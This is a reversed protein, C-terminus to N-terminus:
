QIHKTDDSARMPRIPRVQMGSISINAELLYCILWRQHRLVTLGIVCSCSSVDASLRRIHAPQDAVQMFREKWRGSSNCRIESPKESNFRGVGAFTSNRIVV